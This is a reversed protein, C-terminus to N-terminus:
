LFSAIYATEMIYVKNRIHTSLDFPSTKQVSMSTYSIVTGILSRFYLEEWITIRMEETYEIYNRYHISLSLFMWGFIAYFVTSASIMVDPAVYDGDIDAAFEYQDQRQIGKNMEQYMRDDNDIQDLANRDRPTEMPTEALEINIGSSLKHSSSGAENKIPSSQGNKSSSLLSSSINGLEM